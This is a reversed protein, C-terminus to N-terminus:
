PQSDTPRWSAGVECLDRNLDALTHNRTVFAKNVHPRKLLGIIEILTV